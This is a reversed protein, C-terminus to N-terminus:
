KKSWEKSSFKLTVFVKDNELLFSAFFVAALGYIYEGM